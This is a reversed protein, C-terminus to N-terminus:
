NAVEARNDNAALVPGRAIAAEIADQEACGDSCLRDLRALNAEAKAKAGLAAYAEGQVALAARDTPEITLAKRSLRIAQGYLSQKIAVRAMAVYAARNRPDAVLAAEFANDAAVLDGAALAARGEEVLAVSQPAIADDAARQALGPGAFTSATLGLAILLPSLRM